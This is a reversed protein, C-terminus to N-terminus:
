MMRLDAGGGSWDSAEPQAVIREAPAVLTWQVGAESFELAVKGHLTAPVARTIVLHGFGKRTPSRVPPGGHEVWSLRLTQADAGNSELEWRVEVSGTPVSLAGHMVANTGLEHMALGIQEAATPSLTIPPGSTQLRHEQVAVFPALQARVLEHMDVGRWAGAVLLNHIEVLADIRAAFASQFEAFSTTGLAIQRAISQIVALLNKSRHSLERMIFQFHAEYRKRETIDTNTELIAVPVGAANKHLEWHSQSVVRAGGKTYQM